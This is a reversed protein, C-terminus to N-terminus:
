TTEFTPEEWRALNSARKLTTEVTQLFTEKTRILYLLLQMNSAPRKLLHRMAHDTPCSTEKVWFTESPKRNAPFSLLWGVINIAVVRSELFGNAKEGAYICCAIARGKLHSLVPIWCYFGQLENPLRSKQIWPQTQNSQFINCPCCRPCQPTLAWNHHQWFAM